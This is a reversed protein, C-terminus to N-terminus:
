ATIPAMSYPLTSVFVVASKSERQRKFKFSSIQDVGESRLFPMFARACRAVYGLKRVNLTKM